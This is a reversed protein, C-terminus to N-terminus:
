LFRTAEKILSTIIDMKILRKLHNHIWDVFVVVVISVLGEFVALVSIESVVVEAKSRRRHLSM